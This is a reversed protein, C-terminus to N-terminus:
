YQLHRVEIQHGGIPIGNHEYYYDRWFDKDNEWAEKCHNAGSLMEATAYGVKKGHEYFECMGQDYDEFAYATRSLRTELEEETEQALMYFDGEYELLTEQEEESLSSLWKIKDKTKAFKEDIRKYFTRPTKEKSADLREQERRALESRLESDSFGKLKEVLDIM